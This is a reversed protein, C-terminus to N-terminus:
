LVEKIEWAFEGVKNLIDEGTNESIIKIIASGIIVGDCYTKYKEAMEKNSIGFGIAKPTKTSREVEKMYNEIDTSINNRVGTVGSVSVCYVFGRANKAIEEIRSQSTPAVLPILHIGKLNSLRELGEREELPLDPVILGDIQAESCDKIFKEMGYKYINNYYLMYVIAAQSNKRINKVTNMVDKIKLGNKLAQQSSMQILPGDAMPDSYPIGIEIIDAGNKELTYVLRETYDLSPYGATIFTILAKKNEERLREFAKDIRNM